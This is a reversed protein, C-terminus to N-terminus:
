APAASGSGHLLEPQRELYEAIADRIFQSRNFNPYLETIVDIALRLDTGARFKIIESTGDADLGPRVMAVRAINELTSEGTVAAVDAM